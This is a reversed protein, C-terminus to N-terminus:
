DFPVWSRGIDADTTVCYIKGPYDFYDAAFAPLSFTTIMPLPNDSLRKILDRGLGKHLVRYLQSLQFTQRSLDRHPYFDPIKQWRDFLGFLFDGFVPIPKLRSLAEYIRRSERWLRLDHHPICPYDNASIVHGGSLDRLSFAARSHGYGMNVDVVWARRKKDHRKKPM